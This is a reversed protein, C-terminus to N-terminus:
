GSSFEVAPQFMDTPPAPAAPAPPRGRRKRPPAAGNGNTPKAARPPKAPPEAAATKREAVQNAYRGELYELASRLMGMTQLTAEPSAVAKGFLIPYIVCDDLM